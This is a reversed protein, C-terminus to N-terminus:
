AKRGKEIAAKAAHAPCLCYGWGERGDRRNRNVMWGDAKAKRACETFTDGTFTGPRSNGGPEFARHTPDDCYLDLSYCGVMGM